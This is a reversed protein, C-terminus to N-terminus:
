YFLTQKAERCHAQQAICRMFKHNHAANWQAQTSHGYRTSQLAADATRLNRTSLRLLQLCMIQRMM